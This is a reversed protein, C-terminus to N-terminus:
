FYKIGLDNNTFSVKFVGEPTLMLVPKKSKYVNRQLMIRM